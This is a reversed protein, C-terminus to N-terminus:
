TPGPERAQVIPASAIGLALVAAVATLTIRRMVNEQHGPSTLIGTLGDRRAPHDVPDACPRPRDRLRRRPHLRRELVPEDAWLCRGHDDRRPRVARYRRAALEPRRRHRAPPLPRESLADIAET